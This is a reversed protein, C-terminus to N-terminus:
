KEIKRKMNQEWENWISNNATCNDLEKINKLDIAWRKRSYLIDRGGNKPHMQEM